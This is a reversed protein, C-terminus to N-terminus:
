CDACPRKTQEQHLKAITTDKFLEWVSAKLYRGTFMLYPNFVWYKTHERKSNVVEFKGFVGLQFLRDIVYKVSGVGIGLENAIDRITMDDGLPKLSNTVPQAKLALYSAVKYEVPKTNFYLWKWGVPFTKSFLADPEFLVVEPDGKYTKRQQKTDIVNVEGTETNVTAVQENHAVDLTVNYGKKSTSVSATKTAM